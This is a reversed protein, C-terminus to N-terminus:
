LRTPRLLLERIRPDERFLHRILQLRSEDDPSRDIAKLAWDVTVYHNLEDFHEMIVQGLASLCWAKNRNVILGLKRGVSLRSYFRKRTLHPFDALAVDGDKVKLMVQMAIEDSLFRM